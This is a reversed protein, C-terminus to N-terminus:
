LKRTTAQLNIDLEGLEQLAARARTQAYNSLARTAANELALLEEAIEKEEQTEHFYVHCPGKYNYRFAGFFQM